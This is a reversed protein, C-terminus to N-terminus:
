QLLEWRVTFLHKTRTKQRRMCQLQVPKVAEWFIFSIQSTRPTYGNVNGVFWNGFNKAKRAVTSYEGPEAELYRTTDWSVVVDKISQFADRFRNYNEPLDAAVNFDPHPTVFDFM